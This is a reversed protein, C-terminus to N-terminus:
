SRPYARWLGWQPGSDYQLVVKLGPKPHVGMFDQYRLNELETVEDGYRVQWYGNILEGVTGYRISNANMKDRM